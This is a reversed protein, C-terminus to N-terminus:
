GLIQSADAEALGLVEDYVAGLASTWGELSFRRAITVRAAEGLEARLRPTEVLRQVAATVGAVDGQAVLVGSRGDEVVEDIGSAATAVVPLGLSMADLLAVPIGEQDLTLQCVVDSAATLEVADPRNGLFRVHEAVGLERALGELEPRTPGEGVVLLASCSRDRLLPALGRLMTPHDKQSHLRAVTAVALDGRALGLSARKADRDFGAPVLLPAVPVNRVVRFRDPPLRLAAVHSDRTAASVAVLLRALRRSAFDAAIRRTPWYLDRAPAVAHLTSVVPRRTLLGAVGGLVDAAALHTHVVDARWSRIVRTLALVSRPDSLRTYPVVDLRDAAGALTAAVDPDPAADLGAVAIRFRGGQAARAQAYVLSQAGGVGLGDVVHLVRIEGAVPRGRAAGIPRSYRALSTRAGSGLWSRRRARVPKKQDYAENAAPRTENKTAM